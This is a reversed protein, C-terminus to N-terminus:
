QSLVNRPFFSSTLESEYTKGRIDAAGILQIQVARLNNWQNATDLTDTTISANGNQLVASINM